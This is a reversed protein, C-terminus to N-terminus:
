LVVMSRDSTELQNNVNAMKVVKRSSGTRQETRLCAAARPRKGRNGSFDAEGPQM